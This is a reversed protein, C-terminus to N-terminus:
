TDQNRQRKTVWKSTKFDRTKLTRSLLVGDWHGREGANTQQQLLVAYCVTRAPCSRLHVPGAPPHGQPTVSHGTASGPDSPSPMSTVDTCSPQLGPASLRCLTAAEQTGPGM